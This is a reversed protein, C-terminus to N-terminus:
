LDWDVVTESLSAIVSDEHEYLDPDVRLFAKKSALVYTMTVTGRRSVFLEGGRVRKGQRAPLGAASSRTLQKMEFVGVRPVDKLLFPPHEVRSFALSSSGKPRLVLGSETEEFTFQDLVAIMESSPMDYKITRLSYRSGEWVALRIVSFVKTVEDTYDRSGIRLTGGQFSYEETMPYGQESAFMPGYTLPGTGFQQWYTGAVAVGYTTTPRSLDIPGDIVCTDGTVLTAIAM